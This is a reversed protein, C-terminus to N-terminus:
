RGTASKSRECLGMGAMWDGCLGPRSAVAMGEKGLRFGHKGRGYIHMEAPVRAERCAPYFYISNEASM